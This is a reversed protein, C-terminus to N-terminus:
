FFFFFMNFMFLCFFLVVSLLRKLGFSQLACTIYLLFLCSPILGHEPAVAKLFGIMYMPMVFTPPPHGHDM